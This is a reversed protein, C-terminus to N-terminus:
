EAAQRPGRGNVDHVLRDVDPRLRVMALKEKARPTLRAITHLAKRRTQALGFHDAYRCSYLSLFSLADADDLLVIESERLPGESRALIENVSAADAADVGLSSLIAHIREGLKTPDVARERARHEIREHPESELRDVDHFLAAMQVALSADEDLRLTWQWTDLSHELDMKASASHLAAHAELVADFLPTASAANRRGVYRQYRALVESAVGVADYGRVAINALPRTLEFAEDFRCFDFAGRWAFDDVLLDGSKAKEVLEVRVTPFERELVSTDLEEDAVLRVELKERVPLSVKRIATTSFTRAVSARSVHENTSM